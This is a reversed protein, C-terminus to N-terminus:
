AVRQYSVGKLRNSNVLLGSVQGSADRTARVDYWQRALTGPVWVRFVDGEVAEVPWVTGRLKPGDVRVVTGSDTASFVWEAAM